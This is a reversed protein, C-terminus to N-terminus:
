GSNPRWRSGSPLVARNGMCNQLNPSYQGVADTSRNTTRWNSQSTQEGYGGDVVSAEQKYTGHSYFEVNRDRRFSCYGQLRWSHIRHKINFELGHRLSWQFMQTMKLSKTVSCITNIIIVIIIKMEPKWFVNFFTCLIGYKFVNNTCNLSSSLFSFCIYIDNTCWLCPCYVIALFFM